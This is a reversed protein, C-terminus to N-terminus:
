LPDTLILVDKIDEILLIFFMWEGYFKQYQLVNRNTNEVGGPPESECM